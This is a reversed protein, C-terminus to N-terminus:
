HTRETSRQKENREKAKTKKEGEMKGLKQRSAKEKQAERQGLNAREDSAPHKQLRQAMYEEMTEKLGLTVCRCSNRARELRRVQSRM